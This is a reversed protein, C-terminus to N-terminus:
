AIVSALDRLARRTAAFLAYSGDLSGPPGERRLPAELRRFPAMDLAMLARDTRVGVAWAFKWRLLADFAALMTLAGGIRSGKVTADRWLGGLWVIHQDAIDAGLDLGALEAQEPWRRMASRLDGEIWLLRSAVTGFVQVGDTLLLAVCPPKAHLLPSWAHGGTEAAVARAITQVAEAGEVQAITLGKAAAFTALDQARARVPLRWPEPLSAFDISELWPKAWGRPYAIM